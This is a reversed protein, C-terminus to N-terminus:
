VKDLIRKSLFFVVVFLLFIAIIYATKDTNYIQSCIPCARVHRSVDICSPGPPGEIYEYNSNHDRSYGSTAHGGGPYSSPPLRIPGQIPLQPPTPDMGGNLAKRFDVNTRIKNMVGNSSMMEERDLGESDLKDRSNPTEPINDLNILDGIYTVKSKSSM